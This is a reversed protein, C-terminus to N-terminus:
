KIKPKCETDKNWVNIYKGCRICKICQPQKKGDRDFHAVLCGMNGLNHIKSTVELTTM